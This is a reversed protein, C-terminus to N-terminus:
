APLSDEFPIRVPEGIPLLKAEYIYRKV